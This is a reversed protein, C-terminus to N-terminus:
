QGRGEWVASINHCFMCYMLAIDSFLDNSGGCLGWLIAGNRCVEGSMMYCGVDLMGESASV